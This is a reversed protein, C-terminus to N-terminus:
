GSDLAPRAVRFGPAPVLRLAGIPRPNGGLVAAVASKGGGSYEWSAFGRRRGRGEAPQHRLQAGRAPGREDRQGV